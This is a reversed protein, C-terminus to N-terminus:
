ALPGPARRLPVPEAGCRCEQWQVGSLAAVEVWYQEGCRPCHAPLAPLWPTALAALATDTSCGLRRAVARASLGERALASAATSLASARM